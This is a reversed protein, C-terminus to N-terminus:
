SEFFNTPENDSSIGRQRRLMSDHDYRDFILDNWMMTEYMRDGMPLPPQHLGLPAGGPIPAGAITPASPPLGGTPTIYDYLSGLAGFFIIPKLIDYSAEKEKQKLKFIFRDSDEQLEVNAALTQASRNYRSKDVSLRIYIQHATKSKRKSKGSASSYRIDKIEDVLVTELYSNDALTVGAIIIKPEYVEINRARGNVTIRQATPRIAKFPDRFDLSASLKAEEGAKQKMVELYPMFFLRLYNNIDHRVFHKKINIVWTLVAVFLGSVALLYYNPMSIAALATVIAGAILLGIYINLRTRLKDGYADYASTKALFTIWHKISLTTNITKNDVFHKQQPTLEAYFKNAKRLSM